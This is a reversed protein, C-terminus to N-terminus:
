IIIYYINSKNGNTFRGERDYIFGCKIAVQKSALNDSQCEWCIRKIHGHHCKVYEIVSLIIETAYGLNSHNQDIFVGVSIESDFWYKCLQLAGIISLDDKKKICYEVAYFMGTDFQRLNLEYCSKSCKELYQDNINNDRFLSKIYNNKLNNRKLNLCTKYDEDSKIIEAKLRSTNLEMPLEFVQAM